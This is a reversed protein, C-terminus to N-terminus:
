RQYHSSNPIYFPTLSFENSSFIAVGETDKKKKRGKFSETYLHVNPYLVKHLLPSIQLMYIPSLFRSKFLQDLTHSVM